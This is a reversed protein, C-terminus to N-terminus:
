LEWGDRYPMHLYENAEDLNTIEGKKGDYHLKMHKEALRVAVNALLMTETLPGSYSFNTTAAEPDGKKCAEIWEAHIGPSRPISKPPRTYERM